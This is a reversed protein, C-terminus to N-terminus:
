TLAPPFRQARDRLGVDETLTKGDASISITAITSDFYTFAYNQTGAPLAMVSGGTSAVAWVDCGTDSEM